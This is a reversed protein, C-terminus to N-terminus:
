EETLLVELIGDRYAILFHGVELEKITLTGDDFAYWAEDVSLEFHPAAYNEILVILEGGDVAAAVPAYRDIGAAPAAAVPAALLTLAIGALIKNTM